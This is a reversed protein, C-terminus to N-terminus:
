NKFRRKALDVITKVADDISLIDSIRIVMDYHHAKKQDHQYLTRIFENQEKDRRDILTQARKETVKEFKMLTEIRQKMNAIVRIKLANPLLYNAGRGIIIAEGRLGIVSLIKLLNRTYSRLTMYRKGFFDDALEEIFPLRKEDVEQILKKELRAEKAIEDVIEKHFVKWDKGLKSAVKQAVVSGGSGYERSITIIPLTSKHQFHFMFDGTNSSLVNKNILEFLRKM